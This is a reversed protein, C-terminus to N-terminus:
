EAGHGGNRGELGEHESRGGGREGEMEKGVAEDRVTQEEGFVAEDVVQEGTGLIGCVVM